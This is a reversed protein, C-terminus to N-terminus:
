KEGPWQRIREWEEATTGHAEPDAAIERETERLAEELTEWDMLNEFTEWDM